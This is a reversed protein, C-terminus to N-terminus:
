GRSAKQEGWARYNVESHENYAEVHKHEEQTDWGLSHEHVWGSVAWWM